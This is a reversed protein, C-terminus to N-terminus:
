SNSFDVVMVLELKADFTVGNVPIMQVQSKSKSFVMPNHGDMDEM